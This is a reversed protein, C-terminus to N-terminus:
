YSQRRTAGIVNGDSDITYTGGLPASYTHGGFDISFGSHTSYTTSGDENPVGGVTPNGSNITVTANAFGETVSTLKGPSTSARIAHADQARKSQTASWDSFTEPGGEPTMRPDVQWPRVMTRPVNNSWSGSEQPQRISAVGAVQGGASGSAPEGSTYPGFLSRMIEEGPRALDALTVWGPQPITSPVNTLPVDADDAGLLDALLRERLM